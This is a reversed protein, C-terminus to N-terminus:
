RLISCHRRSGDPLSPEDNLFMLNGDFEIGSHQIPLDMKMEQVPAISGSHLLAHDVSSRSPRHRESLREPRKFELRTQIDRDRVVVDLSSHGLRTSLDFDASEYGLARDIRL